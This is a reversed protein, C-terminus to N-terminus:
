QRGMHIHYLRRVLQEVQLSGCEGSEPDITGNGDTDFGQAMAEVAQQIYQGAPVASAADQAAFIAQAKAKVEPALVNAVIRACKAARGTGERYHDNITPLVAIQDLNQVLEAAYRLAGYNDGYNEHEGDGDLDGYEPSHIGVLINWLDEMQKKAAALDNGQLAGVLVNAHLTAIRTQERLGYGYPTQGPTDPAEVVAERLFPIIETALVGAYQIGTPEAPVNEEMAAADELSLVAGRFLGVLNKGGPENYTFMQGATAEGVFFPLNSYDTLWVAYTKGPPAPPLSTLDVSLSALRNEGIDDFNMLFEEPIEATAPTETAAEVPTPSAAETEVPTTTDGETAAPTPWAAEEDGSNPISAVEGAQGTDAFSAEKVQPDGPDLVGEVGKDEFLKVVLNPSPKSHIPVTFNERQGKEIKEQGLNVGQDDFIVLWGPGNSVVSAIAVTNNVVQDHVVLEPQNAEAQVLQFSPMVASPDGEVPGDAGQVSGFEYKGLEGTDAHLMAYLTPTASAPDDLEVIVGTTEGDEVHQKGIVVGSIEGNVGQIHIAVWGPGQSIVKDITVTNGVLPQDLVVVGPGGVIGTQGTDTSVTVPQPQCASLSLVLAVILIFTKQFSSKLHNM